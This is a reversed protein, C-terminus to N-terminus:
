PEKRVAASAKAIAQNAQEARERMKRVEAGIAKRPLAAAPDDEEAELGQIITRLRKGMQLIVLEFSELERIAESVKVARKDVPVNEVAELVREGEGREAADIVVVVPEPPVAEHHRQASSPQPGDILSPEPARAAAEAFALLALRDRMLMPGGAREVVALCEASSLGLAAELPMGHIIIKSSNVGHDLLMRAFVVDAKDVALMLLEQGVPGKIVRSEPNAEMLMRAADVRGHKLAWAFEEALGVSGAGAAALIKAAGMGQNVIGFLVANNECVDMRWPMIQKPYGCIAGIPLAEPFDFHKRHRAVLHTAADQMENICAFGLATYGLEKKGEESDLSPPRRWKNQNLRHIQISKPVQIAKGSHVNILLQPPRRRTAEQAGVDSLLRLGDVWGMAAALHFAEAASAGRRSLINLRRAVGEGALVWSATSELDKALVAESLNKIAPKKRSGRAKELYAEAREQSGFANDNQESHLMECQKIIIGGGNGTIMIGTALPAEPSAESMLLLEKDDRVEDVAGSAIAASESIKRLLNSTADLNLSKDGIGILMKIAEKNKAKVAWQMEETLNSSGGGALALTKAVSEEDNLIAFVIANQWGHMQSADKELDGFNFLARPPLAGSFIAQSRLNEVLLKAADLQGNMCAFGLATFQFNENTSGSGSARWCLARQPEGENPNAVRRPAGIEVKRIPSLDHAETAVFGRIVSVAAERAVSPVSLMLRLGDVWGLAAAVSVASAHDDQSESNLDRWEKGKKCGFVWIATSQLDRNWAAEVLSAETPAMGRVSKVYANLREDTDLTKARASPGPGSLTRSPRPLSRGSAAMDAMRSEWLSELEDM